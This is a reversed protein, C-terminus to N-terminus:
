EIYMSIESELESICHRQGFSWPEFLNKRGPKGTATTNKRAPIKHVDWISAFIHTLMPSASLNMNPLIAVQNKVFWPWRIDFIDISNEPGRCHFYQAMSLRINQPIPIYSVYGVAMSRVYTSTEQERPTGGSDPDM